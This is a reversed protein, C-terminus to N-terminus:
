NVYIEARRDLAASEYAHTPGYGHTHVHAAPVGHAVLYDGVAKARRESLGQNYAVSGSDDTYANVTVDADAAVAQRAVENLEANEPIQAGDFPFLYVAAAEEAPAQAVVDIEPLVESYTPTAATAADANADTFYAVGNSDAVALMDTQRPSQQWVGAMYGIAGVVFAAAVGALAAWGFSAGHTEEVDATAVPASEEAAAAVPAAAAEDHYEPLEKPEPYGEIRKFDHNRSEM